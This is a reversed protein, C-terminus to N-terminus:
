PTTPDTFVAGMKQMAAVAVDELQQKRRGTWKAYYRETVAVSEHTLLKSVKELPVGHLLMEVAFTDRLMHSRFELPRGQEDKLTLFDNLRDVKRVWKNTNVLQSCQRSWFFYDRNEEKRLPLSGLAQVVHDPLVFEVRSQLPKRNRKKQITATLRNGDLAAKSLSVVDGVRLGTWRQVLFVARLWRGVKASEYRADADFRETAALLEDFQAPTLPWTQSDNTTVAKLLKAPSKPVYDMGECWNFFSRVRILLAAQTTLALPDAPDDPTWSSRWEDLMGPTVDRVNVVGISDAWRKIRRVTGKYAGLSTPTQTKMGALWQDLADGIPKAQAKRKASIQLLAIKVPDRKDLEARAVREAEAWFRTKASIYRTKGSERIYLSKCCKCRKWQPDNQKPCNVSHRTFVTITLSALPEDTM